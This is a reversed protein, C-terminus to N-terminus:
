GDEYLVVAVDNNVVEFCASDRFLIPPYYRYLTSDYETTRASFSRDWGDFAYSNDLDQFLPNSSEYPAGDMDFCYLKDDRVTLIYLKGEHFRMRANGGNGGVIVKTFKEEGNRNYVEVCIPNGLRSSDRYCFAIDGNDGNVTADMLPTAKKPFIALCLFM